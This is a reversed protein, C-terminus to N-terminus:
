GGNLQQFLNDVVRLFERAREEIEEIEAPKPEFRVVFLRHRRDRIRDDFSAFDCWQRRTVALQLLMQPRYEEPAVGHAKWALHTSTKPCKLEVLGDDDVLGDPSAGCYEITPHPMFGVLQVLNGTQVEYEERADPEKDIGRQMEPTVYRRIIDGTMREALIERVLDEAAKTPSGDKKREIATAIRSASLCGTKDSLWAATRQYPNGGALEREVLLASM